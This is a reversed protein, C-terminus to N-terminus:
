GELPYAFGDPKVVLLSCDLRGLLREATNGVLLGAVGGRAVTGLVVLDADIKEARDMIVRTPPGCEVHLEATGAVATGELAEEIAGVGRLRLQELQEVQPEGLEVHMAVPLHYAHVVSLEAECQEALWAAERVVKLGLEGLATAALIRKPRLDGDPRTVWVTSPCKRLLRTSVSGLKRGDPIADSRKGVIALGISEAGARRAMALAAPEETCVLETRIGDQRFEQLVAELAARGEDPIGEHVLIYGEERDWYEDAATSHLLIARSGLKRALWLAQDAALRSGPTLMKGQPGLDLGVLIRRLEKM